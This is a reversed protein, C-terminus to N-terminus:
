ATQCWTCKGQCAFSDVVNEVFNFDVGHKEHIFLLKWSLITPYPM